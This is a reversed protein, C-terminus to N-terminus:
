VSRSVSRTTARARTGPLTGRRRGCVRRGPRHVSPRGGTRNAAARAAETLAAVRQALCDAAIYGKGGTGRLDAAAALMQDTAGACRTRTRRRSSGTTSRTPPRYPLACHRTPPRSASLETEARPTFPRWDTARSGARRRKPATQARRRRARPRVVDVRLRSLDALANQSGLSDPPIGLPTPEHNLSCAPLSALM